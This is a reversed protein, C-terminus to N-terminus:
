ETIVEGGAMTAMALRTPGPTSEKVFRVSGDAFVFNAGGPHLSGAWSWSGVKGPQPVQTRTRDPPNTWNSMWVNIGGGHMSPAIDVGIMVWGRYAWAPCTGNANALTTEGMAVTNSTGDTVSAMTSNSNEGFMRRVTPATRSWANCDWSWYQVSFDYNTKIGILNPNTNDITYHGATSYPLKEDGPDSPCRILPPRMAGIAANSANIPGNGGALTGTTRYNQMALNPNYMRFINEQEVYPMLLLLGSVNLAQTHAPGAATATCWAYNRGAPPFVNNADHYAHLAIGLQKLNNQCKIRAAAERVKQVAPLLLGILIAIIAIVVLLEILTFGPRLVRRSEM